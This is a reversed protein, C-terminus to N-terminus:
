YERLSVQADVKRIIDLVVSVVILLATGGIALATFGTLAQMLLPLVAVVGLFVAGVLTIRTVVRGIYESTQTGPRVGPVFAGSKQLNDAVRHPDFTIATYFFTFLLVMFFYSAGYIVSGFPLTLLTGAVGSVAGFSGSSLFRIILQPFLLISLAFIIPMVGAQNIRLPLYTSVAGAGGGGMRSARAYTVPIPREAETMVVVGYTVLVAAIAFTLYLPIQSPDFAFALQSLTTPLGALIGAFIIISMGNGVGFETILEGIWMLLLSGAVIIILNLAYALPSLSQIIGQSELLFLFGFGQIAAFPVTLLRSYQTFRKRGIEGEEQYMSKVSPFVVTLLQMVISATIFPGVGLMVISLSSLGGGSFINLFSLFQNNTFFQELQFANVGPVPIAALLRFLALGAIVFGIRKLLGTDSLVLKFKRFFLGFM